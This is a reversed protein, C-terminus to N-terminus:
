RDELRWVGIVRANNSVRRSKRFTIRRWRKGRFIAGAAQGLQEPSIGRRELVEQVDDATVLEYQRGLHIAIQQAEALVEARNKSTIGLGDERRKIGADIDFIDRQIM